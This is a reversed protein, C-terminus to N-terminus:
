RSSPVRYPAAQTEITIDDVLVTGACSLTDCLQLAGFRFANVRPLDVKSWIRARDDQSIAFEAMGGPLFHISVEYALGPRLNNSMFVDEGRINRYHLGRDTDFLVIWEGSGGDFIGTRAGSTETDTFVVTWGIRTNEALPIARSFIAQDWGTVTRGSSQTALWAYGASGRGTCLAMAWLSAGIEYAGKFRHFEEKQIVGDSSVARYSFFAGYNDLNHAYMDVGAQNDDTLFGWARELLGPCDRSGAEELYRTVIIFWMQHCEFFSESDDASWSIGGMFRRSPDLRESIVWQLNKEVAQTIGGAGTIEQALMLAIDAKLQKQVPFLGDEHYGILFRGSDDRNRLFIEVQGGIRERIYDALRKEGREDFLHFINVLGRLVTSTNDTLYSLTGIRRKVFGFVRQAGEYSREGIGEFGPIDRERFYRAALALSSLVAGYEYSHYEYDMGAISGDRGIHRIIFGTEAALRGDMRRDGSIMAAMLAGEQLEISYKWDHPVAEEWGGDQSWMLKRIWNGNEEDWFGNRSSSLIIQEIQSGFYDITRGSCYSRHGTVLGGGGLRFVRYLSRDADTGEGTSWDMEWDISGSEFDFVPVGSGRPTKEEGAGSRLPYAASLIISSLILVSQLWKMM